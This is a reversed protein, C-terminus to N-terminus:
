VFAQQVKFYHYIHIKQLAITDLDNVTSKM